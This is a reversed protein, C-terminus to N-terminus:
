VTKGDLGLNELSVKAYMEWSKWVHYGAWSMRKSNVVRIMNRLPYFIHFEENHLNDCSGIAVERWPVFLRRWFTKGLVRLRHKGRWIFYCTEHGYWIVTLILIRYLFTGGLHLRSWNRLSYLKWKNHNYGFM